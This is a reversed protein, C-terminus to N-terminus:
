DLQSRFENEGRRMVAKPGRAHLPDQDRSPYLKLDQGGQQGGAIGLIAYAM